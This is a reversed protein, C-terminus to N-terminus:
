NKENNKEMFNNMINEAKEIERKNTKNTKKIYGSTIIYIKDKWHFYFLRCINNGQIIRL